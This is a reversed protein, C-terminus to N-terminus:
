RARRAEAADTQGFPRCRRKADVRRSGNREPDVALADLHLGREVELQKRQRQPDARRGATAPSSRSRRRGAALRHVSCTVAQSICTPAPAVPVFRGSRPETKPSRRRDGMLMALGRRPRQLRHRPPSREQPPSQCANPPEDTVVELRYRVLTIRPPSDQRESHVDITAREFRFPLIGAMREVNKLVYAAFATTLLDAPGPLQDGQRPSPSRPSRRRNRLHESTRLRHDRCARRYSRTTDM